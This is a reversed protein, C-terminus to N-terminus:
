MSRQAAQWSSITSSVPLMTMPISLDAFSDYWLVDSVGDVQKVDEKLKAVDQAEMGEVILFSFAGTGFQDVLIDQGVMTEIEDPLYYLIDYNVKTKLYGFVSPILLLLSLIVIPIRCKVIAKGFNKM